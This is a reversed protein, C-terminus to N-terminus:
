RPRRVGRHRPGERRRRRGHGPTAPHKSGGDGPSSSRSHRRPSLSAWDKIDIVEDVKVLEYRYDFFLPHPGDSCPWANIFYVDYTLQLPWSVGDIAFQIAADFWRPGPESIRDQVPRLSLLEIRVTDDVDDTDPTVLKYEKVPFVRAPPGLPDSRDTMSRVADAFAEPPGPRLPHPRDPLAGPGGDAAGAGGM